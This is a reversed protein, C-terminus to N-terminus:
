VYQCVRERCAARGIQQPAERAGELGEAGVNLGGIELTEALRGLLERPQEQQHDGALEVGALGAEDVGEEALPLDSSCVDSSWDSIRMEYATKQKCFFFLVFWCLLM